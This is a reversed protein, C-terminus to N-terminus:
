LLLQAQKVALIDTPKPTYTHESELGTLLSKVEIREQGIVQAFDQLIPLTVVVQPRNQVWAVNSPILILLTLLTAKLLPGIVANLSLSAM